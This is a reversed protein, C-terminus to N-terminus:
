EVKESRCSQPSSGVTCFMGHALRLRAESTGIQSAPGILFALGGAIGYRQMLSLRHYACDIKSCRTPESIKRGFGPIRQSRQWRQRGSKRM